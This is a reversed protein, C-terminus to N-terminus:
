GRRSWRSLHRTRVLVVVQVLALGAFSGVLHLRDPVALAMAAILALLLALSFCATTRDRRTLVRPTRLRGQGRTPRFWDDVGWWRM